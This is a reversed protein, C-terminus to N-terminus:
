YALLEAKKEALEEVLKEVRLFAMKADMKEAKLFVLNEVQLNVKM